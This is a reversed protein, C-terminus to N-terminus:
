LIELKNVSQFGRPLLKGRTARKSKYEELDK